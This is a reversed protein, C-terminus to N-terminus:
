PFGPGYDTFANPRRFALLSFSISVDLSRVEHWWGAPLFLADGPELVIRHRRAPFAVSDGRLTSYFGRAEDLLSAELPSALVMEKRGYLQCFLINTTDHHFPTITGAPGLWFSTGGALLGRDFWADDIIVDDLLAGFTARDMNKNHAVSYLDNTPTEARVLAVYEAFTMRVALQRSRRDYDNPFADRGRVVEIEEGGLREALREPTWERAPWGRTFDPLVCPRNAEFYRAYFEDASPTSRREIETPELARRLALVQDRRDRASRERRLAPLLPSTALAAIERVAIHKPVGAGALVEVLQEPQVGAGLDEIAWARLADSLGM